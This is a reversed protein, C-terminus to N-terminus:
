GLSSLTVTVSVGLRNRVNIKKTTTDMWVNLKGAVNPYVGDGYIINTSVGGCLDLVTGNHAFIGQSLKDYSTSIFYICNGDMGRKGFAVATDNAIVMSELALIGGTTVGKAGIKNVRICEDMYVTGVNNSDLWQWFNINGYSTLQPLSLDSTAVRLLVVNQTTISHNNNIAVKVNGMAGTSYIFNTGMNAIVNNEAILSKIGSLNGYLMADLKGIGLITNNRIIISNLTSSGLTQISAFYYIKGVAPDVNNVVEGGEIIIAGESTTDGLTLGGCIKFSTGFPTTGDPLAKYRCKFDRLVGSGKQFDVEVGDPISKVNDRIFTPSIITNSQMQSKISRGRCNIYKGGRVILVTDPKTGGNLASSLGMVHLGDCDANDASGDVEDSTINDFISDVVVAQRVYHNITGDWSISIGITGQNGPIGVGVARSINHAECNEIKVVNFAGYIRMGCASQGVTKSYINKVKIRNIYCDVAFNMNAVTDNKIFLGVKSKNDADITFDGTIKINHGNLNITMLDSDTEAGTYKIVVSGDAIWEIDDTVTANLVTKIIYTGAPFHLKKGASSVIATTLSTANDVDGYSVGYKKISVMDELSSDVQNFKEVTSDVGLISLDGIKNDIENFKIDINPEM